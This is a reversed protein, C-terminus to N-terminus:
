KAAPTDRQVRCVRGLSCHRKRHILPCVATSHHQVSELLVQKHCHSLPWTDSVPLVAKKHCCSFTEPLNLWMEGTGTIGTTRGGQEAFWCRRCKSRTDFVAHPDGFSGGRCPTLLDGPLSQGAGSPMGWVGLALSFDHSQTRGLHMCTSIVQAM